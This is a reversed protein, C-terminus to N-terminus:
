RVVADVFYNSSQWSNTPFVGAANGFVGNLGDAVSALPGSTMQTRLGGTTAVFRANVGVSVVY